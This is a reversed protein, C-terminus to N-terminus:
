SELVRLKAKIFESHRVYILESLKRITYDEYRDINGDAAAVRWMHEILLLKNTRDFQENVLRIHEHLSIASDADKVATDVIDDIETDPLTSSQKLAARISALEKDDLQHDARAIEVLLAASVREVDAVSSAEADSKNVVIRNVWQSFM